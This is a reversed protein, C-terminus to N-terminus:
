TLPPDVSQRDKNCKSLIINDSVDLSIRIYFMHLFLCDNDHYVLLQNPNSKLLDMKAFKTM